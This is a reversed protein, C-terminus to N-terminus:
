NFPLDKLILAVPRPNLLIEFVISDCIENALVLMFEFNKVGWNVQRFYNYNWLYDLM